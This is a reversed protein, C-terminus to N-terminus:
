KRCGSKTIKNWDSSNENSKGDKEAWSTLAFWWFLSFLQPEDKKKRPLFTFSSFLDSPRRTPFDSRTETVYVWVCLERVAVGKSSRRRENGTRGTSPFMIKVSVDM